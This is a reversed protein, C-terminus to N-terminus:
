TPRMNRTLSQLQLEKKGVLEIRRTSLLAEEITYTRWRLERGFFDIDVGSLTLFLMGLVIEPSVNSVLLTEEFFRVRDRSIQLLFDTIAIIKKSAMSVMMAITVMSVQFGVNM